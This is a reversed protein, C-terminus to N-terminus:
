CFRTNIADIRFQYKGIKEQQAAVEKDYEEKLTVLSQKISEVADTRKSINSWYIQSYNSAAENTKVDELTICMFAETVAEEADALKETLDDVRDNYANKLTELNRKLDRIFAEAKKLEKAFFNGIKADEGINLFALVAKVISLEMIGTSPTSTSKTMTNIKFKHFM